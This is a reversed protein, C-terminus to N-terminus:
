FLSLQNLDKKVIKKGSYRIADIIKYAKEYYFSYNINDTPHDPTLKNCVTCLWEGAHIQMIPAANTECEPNKIKLIKEGKNSVYYRILKNYISKTGESSIGEYHFNRSAKQRLTFDYINVESNTIRGEEKIIYKYGPKMSEEPLINNVFFEHLAIAVIRMSTNKHLEKNVEFDGKCKVTGDAKLALYDNVSTQAIWKFETYEFNGLVDNGILKEWGDLIKRFEGNRDRPIICDWGDTNLSVVNFGKLILDEVILLIEMQGGITVQLMGYPYEQWDGRTNLRGYSGGNLSLKGMEQMSNYKALKTRKFEAKYQLRRDIKKVILDNWGPLHKPEVKYKRIANPYQSGIDVQWYIENDKPVLLRAKENSHIGGKAITAILKVDKNNTIKSFDFKFEQKKNLAFTNGFNKVFERLEKTQFKTEKMVPPFFQKFRKGYFHVVKEPKLTSELKKTLEIYDLKNWEAGIKVDDWNLCKLGFEEEMIFRDAIKDKGKYIPNDTQGRTILYFQYTSSVDNKWYHIVSLAEERTLDKKNFPVPTEEVNNFGMAVQVAKLSTRRNENNYHWITFLDIQKQTLNEEKYPPFIGYNSDDIRDKAFQAIMTCLEEGTYDWWNEYSRIIWEIVQADFSLGNFTVIYHELHSFIFKIMADLENKWKSIEFRYWRKEQPDYYGNLFLCDYTEIDNILVPLEKM